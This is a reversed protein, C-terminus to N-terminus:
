NLTVLLVIFIKKLRESQEMFLKNFEDGRHPLIKMSMARLVRPHVSIPGPIMLLYDENM